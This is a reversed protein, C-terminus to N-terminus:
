RNRWSKFVKEVETHSIVNDPNKIEKLAQEIMDLLWEPEEVVEDGANQIQPGLFRMVFARVVSLKKEDEERAILDLIDTKLDLTTM